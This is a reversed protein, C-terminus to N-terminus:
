RRDTRSLRGAQEVLGLFGQRYRNRGVHPAALAQADAFSYGRLLTDGRLIQGYAAVATVFAADGTPAPPAAL